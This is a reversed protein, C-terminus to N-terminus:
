TRIQEETMKGSQLWPGRFQNWWSKYYFEGAFPDDEVPDSEVDDLGTKDMEIVRM